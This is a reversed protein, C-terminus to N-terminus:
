LSGFTIYYYNKVFPLNLFVNWCSCCKVSPQGVFIVSLDNLNWLPFIYKKKTAFLRRKGTQVRFM